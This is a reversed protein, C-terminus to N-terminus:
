GRKSKLIALITWMAFWTKFNLEIDVMFLTNLSWIALVPVIISLALWLAIMSSGSLGKISLAM